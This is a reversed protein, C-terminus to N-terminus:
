PAEMAAAMWEEACDVCRMIGDSCACMDGFAFVEICDPCMVEASMDGDMDDDLWDDDSM